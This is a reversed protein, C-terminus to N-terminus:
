HSLIAAALVSCTTLAMLVSSPSLTVVPTCKRALAMREIRGVLEEALIAHVAKKWRKGM